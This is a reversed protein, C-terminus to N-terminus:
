QKNSDNNGGSMGQALKFFGFYHLLFGLGKFVWKFPGPATNSAKELSKGIGPLIKFYLFYEWGGKAAAVAAGGVSDAEAVETYVNAKLMTYNNLYKGIGSDKSLKLYKRMQDTLIPIKKVNILDELTRNLQEVVEGDKANRQGELIENLVKFNAASGNVQKEDVGELMKKGLRGSMYSLPIGAIGFAIGVPGGFWALSLLLPVIKKFFLGAMIKGNHNGGQYAPQGQAPEQPKDPNADTPQAGEAPAPANPDNTKGTGKADGGAAQRKVVQDGEGGPKKKDDGTGFLPRVPAAPLTSAFRNVPVPGPLPLGPQGNYLPTVM